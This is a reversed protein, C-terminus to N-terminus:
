HLLHTSLFNSKCIFKIPPFATHNLPFFVLLFVFCATHFTLHIADRHTLVPMCDLSMLFHLHIWGVETSTCFPFSQPVWICDKNVNEPIHNRWPIPLWSFILSLYSSFLVRVDSVYLYSTQLGDPSAPAAKRNTTTKGNVVLSNADSRGEPESQRVQRPQAAGSTMVFCKKTRHELHSVSCWQGWSCSLLTIPLLCLGVLETDMVPTATSHGWGSACCQIPFSLFPPLHQPKCSDPLVADVTGFLYILGHFNM